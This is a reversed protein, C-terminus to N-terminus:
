QPIKTLDIRARNYLLGYCSWCIASPVPLLLSCGLAYPLPLAFFGVTVTALAVACGLFLGLSAASELLYSRSDNTGSSFRAAIMLPQVVLLVVLVQLAVAAAHLVSLGLQLGFMWAGVCLFPSWVATRVVNVKFMMRSAEWYGVPMSAFAPLLVGSSWVADFAPWKGGALPLGALGAVAAALAGCWAPLPLFPLALFSAPIAWTLAARWQATWRGLQSGLFFEALTKERASLWRAALSEIWGASNWDAPELRLEPFAAERMRLRVTSDRMDFWTPEVGPGDEGHVLGGDAETFQEVFRSAIEFDLGSYAKKMKRYDSVAPVFIAAAPLFLLLAAPHGGLVGYHYALAIWGPPLLLPATQLLDSVVPPALLVPWAFAFFVVAVWTRMWSPQRMILLVCLALCQAFSLLVAFFALLAAAMSVAPPSHMAAYVYAVGLPLPILLSAFLFKGVSYRFYADNSIP